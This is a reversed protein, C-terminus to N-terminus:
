KSWKKNEYSAVSTGGCPIRNDYYVVHIGTKGTSGEPYSGKLMYEYQVTENASEGPISVELLCLNGKEDTRRRMETYKGRKKLEKYKDEGILEWIVLSVELFTPINESRMEPSDLGEPSLNTEDRPQFKIGESQKM